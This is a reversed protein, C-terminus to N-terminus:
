TIVHKYFVIQLLLLWYYVFYGRILFLRFITINCSAIYFICFPTKTNNNQFLLFRNRKLFVFFFLNFFLFLPHTPHKEYFPNKDVRIIKWDKQSRGKIARDPLLWTVRRKLPHAGCVWMIPGQYQLLQTNSANSYTFFLTSLLVTKSFNFGKLM